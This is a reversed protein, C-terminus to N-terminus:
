HYRIVTWLSVLGQYGPPSREWDQLIGKTTFDFAASRLAGARSPEVADNRPSLLSWFFNLATSATNALWLDHKAKIISHHSRNSSQSWPDLKIIGHHSRWTSECLNGGWSVTEGNSVVNAYWGGTDNVSQQSGAGIAQFGSIWRISYCAGLMVVVMVMMM